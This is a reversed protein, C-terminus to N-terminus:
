TKMGFLTKINRTSISLIEQYDTGIIEALAQAIGVLNAPENLANGQSQVHTEPLKPLQDPSDTEVVIKDLSICTIVKKLNKFANKPGEIRTVSGAISIFFGLQIYEKADKMTGSFSHVIGGKPYPANEKLIKLADQHARVIHLILPKNLRKALILHAHFARTQRNLIEPKKFQSLYDLGTEGIAQAQDAQKELQGLGEQLDQESCDSIWWPHLGFSSIVSPGYLEQIKLQREWDSPHLGGQIWGTVQASRSRQIVQDLAEDSYRLDALHCHADIHM